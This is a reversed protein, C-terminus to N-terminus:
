YFALYKRYALDGAPTGKKTLPKVQRIDTLDRTLEVWRYLIKSKLSEQNEPCLEYLQKTQKTDLCATLFKKIIIIEESEDKANVYAEEFDSFNFTAQPIEPETNEGIMKEPKRSSTKIKKEPKELPDAQQLVAEIESAPINFTKSIILIENRTAKSILHNIM